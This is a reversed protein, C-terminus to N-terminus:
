ALSTFYDRQAPYYDDFSPAATDATGDRAAVLLDLYYEWGPGVEGVGAITTLHHILELRTGGGEADALLAEMRWDGSEDVMSVALRRPPECVDVRLDSWPAGDEYAMQVRVTRGPAADGEWQGFWRVTREPETLWSWVDAAPAGFTRTLVLDHGEATPRLVGTPEPTTRPADTAHDDAIM